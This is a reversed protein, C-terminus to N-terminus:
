TSPQLVDMSKSSVVLQSLRVMSLKEINQSTADNNCLEPEEDVM